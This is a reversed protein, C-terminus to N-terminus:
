KQAVALRLILQFNGCPIFKYGAGWRCAGTRLNNIVIKGSSYCCLYILRLKKRWHLHQNISLFYRSKVDINHIPNENSGGGSKSYKM